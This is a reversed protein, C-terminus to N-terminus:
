ADRMARENPRRAHKRGKGNAKIPQSQPALLEYQTGGKRNWIAMRKSKGIIASTSDRTILNWIVLDNGTVNMVVYNIFNNLVASSSKPSVYAEKM